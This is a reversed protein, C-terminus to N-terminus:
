TGQASDLSTGLNAYQTERIEWWRNLQAITRAPTKSVNERAQLVFVWSHTWSQSNGLTQYDLGKYYLKAFLSVFQYSWM